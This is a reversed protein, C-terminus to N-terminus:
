SAGDVKLSDSESGKSAGPISAALQRLRAEYEAIEDAFETEVARRIAEDSKGAADMWIPMENKIFGAVNALDFAAYEALATICRDFGLIVFFVFVALMVDSHPNNFGDLGAMLRFGSDDQSHVVTSLFHWIGVAQLEEHLALRQEKPSTPKGIFQVRRKAQDRPKTLRAGAREAGTTISVCEAYDEDAQELRGEAVASRINEGLATLQMNLCRVLRESASVGPQVVQFLQAEADIAVRAM